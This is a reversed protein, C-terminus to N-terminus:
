WAAIAWAWAGAFHELRLIIIDGVLDMLLLTGDLDMLDSPPSM